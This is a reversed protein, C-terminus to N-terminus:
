SRSFMSKGTNGNQIEHHHGNHGTHQYDYVYDCFCKNSEEMDHCDHLTKDNDNFYLLNVDNDSLIDFTESQLKKRLWSFILTEMNFDTSNDVTGILEINIRPLNMLESQSAYFLSEFNEKIYETSNQILDQDYAYSRVDLCNAHNLNSILYKSCINLISEFTLVHALIYVENILTMPIHLEGTYMFDICCKLADHTFENLHKLYKAISITQQKAHKATLRNIQQLQPSQNGDSGNIAGASAGPENHNLDNNIFLEMFLKSNCAIILQHCYIDNDDDIQIILDCLQRNKRLINLMSLLENSYKTTDSFYIGGGDHQKQSDGTSDESNLHQMKLKQKPNRVATVNNGDTLADQQM